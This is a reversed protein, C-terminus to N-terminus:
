AQRGLSEVVRLPARVLGNADDPHSV